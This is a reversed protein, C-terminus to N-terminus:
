FDFDDNANFDINVAAQARYFDVIQENNTAQEVTKDDRHRIFRPFRLAIGKDAEVEGIAANYLPSLSLDAAKIEWVYKPTIWVDINKEKFKLEPPPNTIVLDKLRNHIFEM